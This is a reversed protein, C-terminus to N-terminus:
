ENKFYKMPDIPMNDELVEFHLHEGTSSGAGLTGPIGGSLGIKQQSNVQMGKVVNFKSM